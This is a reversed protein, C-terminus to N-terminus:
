HLGGVAEEAVAAAETFASHLLHVSIIDLIENVNRPWKKRQLDDLAEKAATIDYKECALKIDLFKDRLYVIHDSSLEVNEENDAPKYKDYLVKLANIFAPTDEIIATLNREYGAQELRRAAGSLETEGVNALASKMGHVATIYREIVADDSADLKAYVEGIVRIANEADLAFFKEIGSMDKNDKAPGVSNGTERDRQERWTAEIVERPQKDRIFHDLIADMERSDIPKPIFGDFGNALFIEAQGAVANATLAVVPRTYGMERIIKTTEMGDIVPMMHDMFVIDYVSGNKIKEIAETGSSATEIRLGYPTLLGKAVFLNSAVDDVILVSGYPMYEHVIQAKKSISMSHFQFNRLSDALEAGCVASGINKQPLRVTFTSGKGAESVVLIEGGMMDILRKSISMGLGTGQVGRNTIMNFRSYDDFLRAIQDDRMGQGTDSVKIVLTITENDDGQEAYVSLEIEGKDTYKFANSLLNNLIQKIRLEDGYLDLPTNEDVHLIFELPKSEYRLRNLQVADNILSPINYKAPVIELKGAEIKSFDLIDNIINLLLNGSDYIEKFGEEANPSLTKDRLQIESIGLIANMPTRIEHSMNALFIGKSRNSQEASEKATILQLEVSRKNLAGVLINTVYSAMNLKDQDWPADNGERAFDIVAHLVDGLFVCSLIYNQFNVRYSALAKKVEPDNSTIYFLGQEKVRYIIDLVPKGISFNGGVRTPLGLKPNIWENRCTFSVGDNDTVYMLIQDIGMFEGIKRLAETILVDMDETSLFSQSIYTMLSQQELRKDLTDTMTRLDTIEISQQLHAKKGNPWNIYRDVNRYVRDKSASREEWVILKDPEEDLQFCPCFDCRENQGRRFIEYCILGVVDGEINYHRKMNDNIFLIESTEPDTVFIMTDLGDLVNSLYSLANKEEIARQMQTIAAQAERTKEQIKLEESLDRAYGITVEQGRYTSQVLTVQCPILDGSIKKYTWPFPGGQNKFALDIYERLLNETRQGNPQYEPSFDLFRTMYEDKRGALGVMLLIAQNCDVVNYNKDFLTAGFPAADLMLRVRKDLESAEEMLVLRESFLTNLEDLQSKNVDIRILLINVALMLVFGMVSLFLILIRLDRYYVNRPTMIGLYWGNEIRECYFISRIGQYNVGEVKAFNEGGELIEMIQGIAPGIENMHKSIFYSEHHAVLDFDENALFGYGGEVLHMDAVFQTINDLLVDMSIVGLPVGADDFIRCAVNIQYVGSRLSRYIPTIIIRGGAEVAAKYWPRETAIYDDPVIWGPAPIYVDGFAEFFGHLGDFVFGEEKKLLEASIDNYYELVDDASGGHVIIDHVDKVISIMLTEPELLDDMIRIQTQMLINVADRKLYNVLMNNVFIGSAVVLLTFALTV